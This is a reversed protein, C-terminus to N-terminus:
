WAGSQFNPTISRVRNFEQHYARIMNIAANKTLQGAGPRQAVRIMKMTDVYFDALNDFLTQHEQEVPSLQLEGNQQPAAQQGSMGKFAQMALEVPDTTPPRGGAMNKMGNVDAAPNNTRRSAGLKEIAVRDGYQATQINPLTMEEEEV